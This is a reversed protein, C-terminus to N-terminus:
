IIQCQIIWYYMSNLFWLENFLFHNVKPPLFHTKFSIDWSLWFIFVYAEMFHMLFISVYRCVCVCVCLQDKFLTPTLPASGGHLWFDAYIHGGGWFKVVLVPWFSWQYCLQQYVTRINQTICITKSSCVLSFM